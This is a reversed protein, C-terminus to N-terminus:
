PKATGNMGNFICVPNVSPVEGALDTPSAPTYNESYTRMAALDAATPTVALGLTSQILEGLGAWGNSQIEVWQARLAASDSLAQIFGAAAANQQTPNM